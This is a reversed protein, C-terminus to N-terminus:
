ARNRPCSPLLGGGGGTGCASASAFFRTGAVSAQTNGWLPDFVNVEADGRNVRSLAYRVGVFANDMDGRFEKSFFYKDIGLRIFSNSSTFNLFQNSVKSNGAGFELSLATERTFNADIQFEYTKYDNALQSRVIKSLDIGFRFFTFKKYSTDLSSIKSEIQGDQANLRNVFLCTSVMCIM